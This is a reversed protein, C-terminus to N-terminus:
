FTFFEDFLKRISSNGIDKTIERRFEMMERNVPFMNYMDEVNYGSSVSKIGQFIQRINLDELMDNFWKEDNVIAGNGLLSIM